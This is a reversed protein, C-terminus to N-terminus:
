ERSFHKSFANQFTEEAKGFRRKPPTFHLNQFASYVTRFMKEVRREPRNTRSGWIKTQSGHMTCRYFFDWLHARIAWGHVLLDLEDQLGVLDPVQTAEDFRTM